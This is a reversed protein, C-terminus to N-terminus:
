AVSLAGPGPGPWRARTGASDLDPALGVAGFKPALLVALVVPLAVDVM